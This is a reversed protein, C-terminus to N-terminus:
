KKIETFKEDCEEFTEVSKFEEVLKSFEINYKEYYPRIYNYDKFKM